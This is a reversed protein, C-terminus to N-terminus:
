DIGTECAQEPVNTNTVWMAYRRNISCSHTHLRDHDTTQVIGTHELEQDCHCTAKHWCLWLRSWFLETQGIESM